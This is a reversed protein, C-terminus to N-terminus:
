GGTVPPFFAVEDSEALPCAGDVLAQNVATRLDARDQLARWVGGRLALWARLDDVCRVGPPLSLHEQACGLTERLSAFYLVNM